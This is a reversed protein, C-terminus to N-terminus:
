QNKGGLNFDNEENELIFSILADLLFILIIGNTIPIRYWRGRNDNNLDHGVSKCSCPSYGMMSRQGYSKGPLFVPSLTREKKLPDQDLPTM